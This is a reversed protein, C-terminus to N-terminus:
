ILTIMVSFYIQFLIGMYENTVLTMIIGVIFMPRINSPILTLIFSTIFLIWYVNIIRGYSSMQKTFHTKNIRVNNIYFIIITVCVLGIFINAIVSGISKSKLFSAGSVLIITEVYM